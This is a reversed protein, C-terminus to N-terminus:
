TQLLNLSIMAESLRSQPASIANASVTVSASSASPDASRVTYGSATCPGQCCRPSEANRQRLFPRANNIQGIYTTAVLPPGCPIPKRKRKRSPPAEPTTMTKHHQMYLRFFIDQISLFHLNQHKTMLTLHCPVRAPYLLLLSSHPEATHVHRTLPICTTM